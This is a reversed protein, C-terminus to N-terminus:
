TGDVSPVLHVYKVFHNNTTFILHDPTLVFSTCNKVLQRNNAYLHGSRTLGFAVELDQIKIVEFWPLHIPFNVPLLEIAKETLTFLKGSRDQGISFSAQDEACSIGMTSLQQGSGPYTNFGTETVTLLEHESVITGPRQDLAESVRSVTFLGDSTGASVGVLTHPADESAFASSYKPTPKSSRGNKLPLDYVAVGKHHLVAMTLGDWGFAVDVVASDVEIEFQSMPPPVNATRFATFKVHNGDIVAVAGTDYPPRCSGRSVNFIYEASMLANPTSVSLRLPKESHWAFSSLAAQLPIEQKLYWHYNGMTWLQATDKLLVALVTSDSNWELKISSESQVDNQTSRLTFQGHRLGNREFFIIDVRDALRQVGAILNGSPRWSISSELGDVPESASDLEGERSYVRIVRREGSEVSNIAVFAGDGRWSITTRGDEHPSPLGQDVKEPITPDRQARAGRGQFQTERKGWGVSVHKSAKLDEATMRVETVPDFTSGMFIVNKEKTVVILLEEDPSWRAAAIGSDISGIIEIQPTGHIDQETVLVIDGGEFVICTQGTGSLHQLSM